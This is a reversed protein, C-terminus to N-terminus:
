DGEAGGFPRAEFYLDSRGALQCVLYPLVDELFHEKKSSEPSVKDATGYGPAETVLNGSLTYTCQQGCKGKLAAASSRLEWYAGPHFLPLLPNNGLGSAIWDASPAYGIVAPVVGGFPFAGVYRLEVCVDIEKPCKPLKKTWGLDKSEVAHWGKCLDAPSVRSRLRRLEEMIAQKLANVAAASLDDLKDALKQKLARKFGEYPDIEFEGLPDTSHAPRNGVYAYLNGHAGPDSWPGLTDRTTFRGGRPDLYRTRYHHWGTEVDLRRGTFFHRNGSAPAPDGVVPALSVPDLPQGYDAYDYREAVADTADSIAAASYLGDAHYYYDQSPDALASACLLLVSGMVPTKLRVQSCMTAVPHDDEYV